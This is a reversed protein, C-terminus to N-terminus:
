GKAGPVLASWGIVVGFANFAMGMGFVLVSTVLSLDSSTMQGTLSLFGWLALPVGLVLGMLAILLVIIRNFWDDSTKYPTTRDLEAESMGVM